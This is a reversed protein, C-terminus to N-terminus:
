FRWGLMNWYAAFLVFVVSAVAMLSYYLRSVLSWYGRMWAIATLALFVISLISTVIPIVLMVRIPLPVGYVLGEGFSLLIGLMFVLNLGSVIWGVWLARGRASDPARSRKRVRNILAGLPWLVVGSAFLLLLSGLTGLQAEASEYWALKEFATNQLSVFGYTVEGAENERFALTDGPDIQLGGLLQSGGEVQKFVNQGVPVYRWEADAGFFSLSLSTDENAQIVIPYPGPVLAILKGLTSRPYRVWRYSGAFREPSESSMEVAQPVPDEGQAPYYHDFFASILQERFADDFRNYAVFFGLDEDPILVM